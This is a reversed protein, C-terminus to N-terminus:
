IGTSILRNQKFTLVRLHTKGSTARRRPQLMTGNMKFRMSYLVVTLIELQKISGKDKEERAADAKGGYANAKMGELEKRVTRLQKEMEEAKKETHQKQRLEM